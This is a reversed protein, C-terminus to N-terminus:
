LPSLMVATFIGSGFLRQAGGELSLAAGLREQISSPRGNDPHVDPGESQRLIVCGWVKETQLCSRALILWEVLLHLLVPM